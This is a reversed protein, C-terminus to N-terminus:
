FSKSFLKNVKGNLFYVFESLDEFLFVTDFGAAAATATAAAGPAPASAASSFVLKSTTRLAAPAALSCTTLSTFSSVPRPRFSALSSTSM